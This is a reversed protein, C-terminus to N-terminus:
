IFNRKKEKLIKQDLIRGAGSGIDGGTYNVSKRKLNGMFNIFYMAIDPNGQRMKLNTEGDLNSTEIYCINNSETSGLLVLDAPVFENNFIYVFDGSKLEQWIKTVWQNNEWVLVKKNNIKKDERSRRLDEYIERVAAIFLVIALPGLTTWRGTPSIGPIQQCISVFLFWLNAM